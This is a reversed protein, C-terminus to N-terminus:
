SLLCSCFDIKSFDSISVPKGTEDLSDIQDLFFSDFVNRVLETTTAKTWAPKRNLINKREPKRMARRSVLLAYIRYTIHLLVWLKLFVSEFKGNEM